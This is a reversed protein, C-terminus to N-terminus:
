LSHTLTSMGALSWSKNLVLRRDNFLVASSAKDYLHKIVQNLNASINCKKVTAWLAAHWVRNFAKKFDIFVNYLDQQHQFYIECLIRQTFVQEKPSRKAKFVEQEERPWKRACGKAALAVEAHSAPRCELCFWYTPGTKVPLVKGQVPVFLLYPLTSRNSFISLTKTCNGFLAM